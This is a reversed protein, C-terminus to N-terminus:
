VDGLYPCLKRRGDRREFGCNEMYMEMKSREVRKTLGDAVNDEGRVMIISLEGRRVREQVRLERVKAHRVRGAGRRSSMIRAAGSDTNVQVDVGLGWDKFTSKIGIGMTAAKPICHFESEGSSLANTEQAQSYTKLCNSGLM